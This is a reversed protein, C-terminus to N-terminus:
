VDNGHVIFILPLACVICVIGIVGAVNIITGLTGKMKQAGVNAQAFQDVAELNDVHVDDQLDSYLQGLNFRDEKEDATTLGLGVPSAFGSQALNPVDAADLLSDKNVTSAIPVAQVGLQSNLLASVAFLVAPFFVAFKM